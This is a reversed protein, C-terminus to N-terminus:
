VECRHWVQVLLRPDMSIERFVLSRLAHANASPSLPHLLPYRGCYGLISLEELDPPIHIQYTVQCDNNEEIRLCKLKSFMRESGKNNSRSRFEHFFLNRTLPVPHNSSFMLSIRHVETILCFVFLCLLPFALSLVRIASTLSTRLKGLYM